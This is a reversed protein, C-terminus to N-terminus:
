KPAIARAKRAKLEQSLKWWFLKGAHSNGCEKLEALIRYTSQLGLRQIFGLYFPFSGKGKKATEGFQKYCIEALEHYESHISSKKKPIPIRLFDALPKIEKPEEYEEEYM